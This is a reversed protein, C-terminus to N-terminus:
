IVKKQELAEQLTLISRGDLLEPGHVIYVTLNEHTYPGSLQYDASPVVEGREQSATFRGGPPWFGHPVNATWYVALTILCISLVALCVVLYRWKMVTRGM